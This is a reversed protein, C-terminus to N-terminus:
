RSKRKPKRSANASTGKPTQTDDCGEVHAKASTGARAVPKELPKGTAMAEILRDFQERSAKLKTM